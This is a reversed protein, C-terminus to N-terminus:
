RYEFCSYKTGGNEAGDPLACEITRGAEQMAVLARYEPVYGGLCLPFLYLDAIQVLPSSKFKKKCGVLTAAMEEGTLPAYKSSTEPNFPMGDKRLEGFYEEIKAENARDSREYYVYLSRGNHHAFKAARETVICFTTKCLKWRQRGYRELYRNSYGLRDIVCAIGWVPLGMLFKTLDDYFEARRKATASKLWQFDETETRIHYSHLPYTIGWAECFAEYAARAAPEDEEAIVIGGLAFWKSGDQADLHKDLDRSGSDDLYLNYRLKM